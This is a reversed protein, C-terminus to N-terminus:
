PMVWRNTWLSLVAIVQRGSLEGIAVMEEALERAKELTPMFAGKGVKVDLVIAHAGAAIKKSM